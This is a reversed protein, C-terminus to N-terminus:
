FPAEDRFPDEQAEKQKRIARLRELVSREEDELVHAPPQPQPQPARPPQAPRAEAWPDSYQEIRPQLPQQYSSQAPTQPQLQPQPDPERVAFPSPVFDPNAQKWANAQAVAGPDGVMDSVVWPPNMGNKAAGRGMRGLVKRGIWPRLQAILQAQMLNSNRYVKGPRGYDDKDDLDIIDCAIADSKKGQQTFRTQIFPVYGLPYVILLHGDLTAPRAFEGSGEVTRGWEEEQSM